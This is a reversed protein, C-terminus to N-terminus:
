RRAVQLDNVVKRVGKVRRALEEARGKQESSEVTGNLHVIGNNTDVDVRTLNAAKDMVLQSKVAATVSADDVNEGATKGTMAACGLLSLTILVAVFNKVAERMLSGGEQMLIRELTAVVIEVNELYDLL